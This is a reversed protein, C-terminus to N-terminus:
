HIRNLVRLSIAIPVLSSAQIIFSKGHTKSNYKELLRLITLFAGYWPHNKKQSTSPYLLRDSFFYFLKFFYDQKKGMKGLIVGNNEKKKNCHKNPILPSTTGEYFSKM